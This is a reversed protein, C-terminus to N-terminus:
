SKGGLFAELVQPAVKKVRAFSGPRHTATLSYLDQGRSFYLVLQQVEQAHDPDRLKYEISSGTKEILQFGDFSKQFSELDSALLDDVSTGPPADFRLQVVVTGAFPVGGTNDITQEHLTLQALGWGDPLPISTKPSVM